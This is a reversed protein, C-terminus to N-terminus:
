ARRRRRVLLGAGVLLLSGLPADQERCSCGPDDDLPTTTEAGTETFCGTV